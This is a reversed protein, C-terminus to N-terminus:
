QWRSPKGSPKGSKLYASTDVTPTVTDTASFFREDTPWSNGLFLGWPSDYHVAISFRDMTPLLINNRKCFGSIFNLVMHSRQRDPVKISPHLLGTKAPSLGSAAVFAHTDSNMKLWCLVVEPSVPHLQYRSPLFVLLSANVSSLFAPLILCLPITLPVKKVLSEIQWTVMAVAFSSPFPPVSSFLSPEQTRDVYYVPTRGFATAKNTWPSRLLWSSRIGLMM